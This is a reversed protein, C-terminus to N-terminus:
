YWIWCLFSFDKGRHDSHGNEGSKNFMTNSTRTLAIICSFFYFFCEYGLLSTFSNNNVYSICKYLYIISSWQFLSLTASFCRSRSKQSHWLRQSPPDCYVTSFESLSPFVLGDAFVLNDKLASMGELDEFSGGVGVGVRGLLPDGPGREGDTRRELDYPKVNKGNLQEGAQRREAFPNSPLTLKVPQFRHRPIQARDLWSYRARNICSWDKTTFERHRWTYACDPAANGARRPCRPLSHLPTPSHACLQLRWSIINRGQFLCCFGLPGSLSQLVCLRWWM